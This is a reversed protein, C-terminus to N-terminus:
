LPRQVLSSRLDAVHEGRQNTVRSEVIMFELSGGKKEYLDVIRREFSLTDGAHVPRHYRYGQEAHLIRALEMGVVDLLDTTQAVMGQLCSIFTPPIPLAPHGAARAAGVDLYVPDTEGIAQAYARAAGEEVLISVSPFCHGILRKDLM